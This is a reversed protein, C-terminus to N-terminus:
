QLCLHLYLIVKGGSYEKQQHSSDMIYCNVSSDWIRSLTILSKEVAQIVTHNRSDIWTPQYLFVKQVTFDSAITIIIIQTILIKKKQHMKGGAQPLLIPFGLCKKLIYLHKKGYIIAILPFILVERSEMGGVVNYPNESALCEM